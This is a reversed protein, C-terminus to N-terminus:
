LGRLKWKRIEKTWCITGSGASLWRIRLGTRRRFWLNRSDISGPNWLLVSSKIRCGVVLPWIWAVIHPNEHSRSTPYDEQHYHNDLHLTSSLHGCDLCFTAYKFRPSHHCRLALSHNHPMLPILRCYVWSPNSTPVVFSCQKIVYKIIRCLM